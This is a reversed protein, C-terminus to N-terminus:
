DITNIQSQPVDDDQRSRMHSMGRLPIASMVVVTRFWVEACSNLNRDNSKAM